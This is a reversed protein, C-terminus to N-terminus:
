EPTLCKFLIHLVIDLNLNARNYYCQFMNHLVQVFHWQWMRKLKIVHVFHILTLHVSLEVRTYYWQFLNHLTIDDNVKTYNCKFFLKDERTISM